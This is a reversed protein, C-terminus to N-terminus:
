FLNWYKKWLEVELLKKIKTQYKFTM